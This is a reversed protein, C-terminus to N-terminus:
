STIGRSNQWIKLKKDATGGGTILTSSDIWTIAKIAASHTYYDVRKQNRIDYIHVMNDNGGSALLNSM